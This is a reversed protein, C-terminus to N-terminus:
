ISKKMPNEGTGIPQIMKIFEQKKSALLQLQGTCWQYDNNLKEIIKSYLAMKKQLNIQFEKEEQSKVVTSSTLEANFRALVANARGLEQAATSLTVSVMDEDEDLLWYQASEATTSDGGMSVGDILEQAKTLADNVEATPFTSTISLDIDAIKTFLTTDADLDTPLKTRFLSLREVLLLEAAHYIVLDKWVAPFHETGNTTVGGITISSDTITEPGDNIVKGNSASIFYIWAQTNAGPNPYVNLVGTSDTIYVPSTSNAYYISDVEAVKAKNEEAAPQCFIGDREIKLVEFINNSAIDLNLATPVVSKRAFQSLNQPSIAKVTALTFDVGQKLADDISVSTLGASDGAFKKVKADFAM